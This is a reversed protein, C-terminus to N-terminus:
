NKEKQALVYCGPLSGCIKKFEVENIKKPDSVIVPPQSSRWDVIDIMQVTNSGVLVIRRPNKPNNDLHFLDGFSYTKSSPTPAPQVGTFVVSIQRGEDSSTIAAKVTNGNLNFTLTDGIRTFTSM